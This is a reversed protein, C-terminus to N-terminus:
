KKTWKKAGGYSDGVKVECNLPLTEAWKPRWRMCEQVYAAAEDAEEIPALCAVADHVTLVPQYRKSIRLMQEGIVCRALAQCVNEVVKGGYINVKGKRTDYVYQHGARTPKGAVIHNREEERLNTYHLPIGSPFDFGVGPLLNVAQEQKGFTTTRLDTSSLAELCNDGDLWLQPIWSFERRYTQLIVSCFNMDLEVGFTKLQAQFKMAGMGYGCGLITTKGVFREDDTIDVIDKKYIKAAMIKYM